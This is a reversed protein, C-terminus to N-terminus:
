GGIHRQGAARAQPASPVHLCAVDTYLAALNKPKYCFAGKQRQIM